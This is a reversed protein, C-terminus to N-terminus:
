RTNANSFEAIAAAVRAIEAATLEPYIPLSLIEACLQEAVPYSGPGKGLHAFAPTRHIPFPYHVASEIGREKLFAALADRQPHRIMFLHYVHADPPAEAPVRVRTGELLKRYSAAHQARLANAADLHPLKIKLVAAQLTDLRSNFGVFEHHHKIKQGYNRLKRIKEALADDDTTIAGGDGFAGINKGPYFSFAAAIGFSGARKGGQRAGHAQCADEILHLKHTKAITAIAGMDAMRGCLHVPIIAKTKATIAAEIKRPDINYTETEVDVLRVTAGAFEVALATAIFTNAPVIVEDGPGIGLGRLILHLADTGSAVGISHKTGCYGAFAQEFEGVHKGLIFASTDIVERVAADIAARLPAHHKGLDLFKVPEM